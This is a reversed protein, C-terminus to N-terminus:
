ERRDESVIWDVAPALSFTEFGMDCLRPEDYNHNIFM